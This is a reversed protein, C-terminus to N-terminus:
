LLFHDNGNREHDDESCGGFVEEDSNAGCSIANKSLRPGTSTLFWPSAM